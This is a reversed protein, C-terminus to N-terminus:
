ATATALQEKLRTVVTQGHLVSEHARQVFSQTEADIKTDKLVRNFEERLYDEGRDIAQIVAKDGGGLAVLIDELRRHVTGAASGFENPKGDLARSRDQLLTVAVQRETALDRFLAQFEPSKAKEASHEYGKVSDILTTILDDLKSIAHNNSM